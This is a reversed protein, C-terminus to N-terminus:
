MVSGSVFGVTSLTLTGCATSSIAATLGVSFARPYIPYTISKGSGASVDVCEVLNGSSSGATTSGNSPASTSNFVMLWCAATCQAYVGYLNGASAKLVCSSVASGCTTATLALASSSTPAPVTNGITASGAPISGAIGAAM